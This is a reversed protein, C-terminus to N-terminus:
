FMNRRLFFVVGGITLIFSIIFLYLFAHPNNQMPLDVNMGYISAILTPIMLILTIATLQKMVSNIKNSILSSFADMTGGLVDNYINAMEIAQRNEIIVDELLDEDIKYESHFNITRAKDLVMVNSKLSTIFFVLCKKMVMLKKMEKNSLNEQLSQEISKTQRNIEKLYLLFYSTSKLFLRFVFQQKDDMSINKMKGSMFDDITRNASICITILIKDSLLVGLPVTFYPTDNVPKYVPIRLIVLQWRGETEIRPREDIDLIDAIFESPVGFDKKLQELEEKGPQILSVWSGPSFNDHQVIESNIKQWYTIM